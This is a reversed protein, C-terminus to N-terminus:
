VKELLLQDVDIYGTGFGAECYALYFEWMRRFTEDFGLAAVRDANARFKSLWAHLTRAYDRGFATCSSVRLSTHTALVDNIARLSPLIGGPFIYKHIWTYSGRTALLRDHDITIAQLGARGRPMLVRDITAFYDPWYREGVAEIMEVSLVADYHGTVERYDRLLVNVRDGVAARAARERALRQQERSLTLSTVHAGRQAARIALEGWGTGIELVRTGAGTRTLDLLRDIKRRQAEALSAVDDADDADGADGAPNETDWMASSYSMTEDLFLSFLENSLDYHREINSRAGSEDNEESAPQRAQWWSRMRQLPKPVLSTVHRALPTLFGALDDCRWDAVMYAEGFGILGDAGLRRYFSRPRDIHALPSQMTGGGFVRGDPLAVRLPLHGIARNFVARAAAAHVPRRRAPPVQQWPGILRQPTPTQAPKPKEPTTSSQTPSATM